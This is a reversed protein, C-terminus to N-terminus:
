EILSVTGVDESLLEELTLLDDSRKKRGAAATSSLLQVLFLGLLGLAILSILNLYDKKGGCCTNYSYDSYGGGGYSGGNDYDGDDRQRIPIARYYDDRRRIPIERSSSLWGPEIVDTSRKIRPDSRLIAMLPRVFTLMRKLENESESDTEKQNDACAQHGTLGLVFLVCAGLGIFTSLKTM